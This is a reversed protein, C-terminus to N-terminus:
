SCISHDQVSRNHNCIYAEWPCRTYLLLHIERQREAYMVISIFQLSAIQEFSNFAPKLSICYFRSTQRCKLLHYNHSPIGWPSLFGVVVLSKPYLLLFIVLMIMTELSLDFCFLVVGVSCDYGSPVIGNMYLSSHM